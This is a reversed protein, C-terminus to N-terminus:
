WRSRRKKSGPERAILKALTLLPLGILWMWITSNGTNTSSGSSQMRQRLSKIWEFWEPREKTLAEFASFLGFMAVGMTFLMSTGYVAVMTDGSECHMLLYLVAIFAIGSSTGLLFYKTSKRM